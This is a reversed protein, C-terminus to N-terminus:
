RFFLVSSHSPSCLHYNTTPLQYNTTPLQYTTPPLQYCALQPEGACALAGTGV